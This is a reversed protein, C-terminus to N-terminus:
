RLRPGENSEVGIGRPEPQKDFGAEKLDWLGRSPSATDPDPCRFNAIEQGNREVVVGAGSDSYAHLELYVTYTYSAITFALEMSSGKAYSSNSYRFAKRFPTSKSPYILEPSQGPSGFRYQM